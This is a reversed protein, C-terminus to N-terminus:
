SAVRKAWPHNARFSARQSVEQAIGRWDASGSIEQSAEALVEQAMQVRLAHHQAADLLAAWKAPDEHALSCWAPTGAMPWGNVQDLVTAVFRHVTLWNVSRASNFQSGGRTFNM